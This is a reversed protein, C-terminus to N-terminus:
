IQTEQIKAQFAFGFIAGCIGGIIHAFESIRNTEFSNVVEKGLYLVLILIFTLPIQRTKLNSVSSLVIMMFVIGSAGLIMNKFLMINLLATILATLLCMSLLKISGYKEELMPGLLLILSFNGFLHNWNGHGLVHSFLRFYDLPNSWSMYPNTSFNRMFGGVGVSYGQHYGVDVVQSVMLIVVCVFTYSLIVPSNYSIKM